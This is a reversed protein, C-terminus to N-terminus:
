QKESNFLNLWFKMDDKSVKPNEKEPNLSKELNRKNLKKIFEESRFATAGQNKVKMILENDSTIVTWQGPSKQIKLFNIIKQDAKEPNKSFVVDQKRNESYTQIIGPQGDYFIKYIIKKGQFYNQLLFNFRQRALALEDPIFEVLEPIKWIVNWADIIIKNTM